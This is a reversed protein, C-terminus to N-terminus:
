RVRHLYRILRIFLRVLRPDLATGASEAIVAIAQDQVRAPSYSRRSTMADFADAVAVIRSPLHQPRSREVEPYGRGDFRMHHELVTVIASRDVGPMISILQAGDVPHRRVYAWEDATLAGEKNLIGQDLALKGIDHLLAGTGLASLFRYENLIASGLSIALVAVNVSHFYTYEDYNKLGTLQLMANRNSLVNDVLSQVARRVPVKSLGRRSGISRGMERLLSVADGFSERPDEALEDSSDVRELRRLSGLFVNSLEARGVAADIGGMSEITAPDSAIVHLARVLERATVGRRILLSGIGIEMM